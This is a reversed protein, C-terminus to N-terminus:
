KRARRGVAVVWNVQTKGENVFSVCLQDQRMHTIQKKVLLIQLMLVKLAALSTHLKTEM